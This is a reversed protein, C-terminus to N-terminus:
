GGNNKKELNKKENTIFISRNDNSISEKPIQGPTAKGGQNVTGRERDYPINHPPGIIENRLM